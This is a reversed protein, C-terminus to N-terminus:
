IISQSFNSASSNIRQNIYAFVTGGAIVQFNTGDYVIEVISGAPLDGAQLPLNTFKYITKAGLGDINITSTGTNANGIKLFFSKRNTYSTVPPTTTSTGTYTDTGSTSFYRGQEILILTEQQTM